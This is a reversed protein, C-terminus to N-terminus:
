PISELHAENGLEDVYPTVSHAILESGDELIARGTSLNWEVIKLLKIPAGPTQCRAQGLSDLNLEIDYYALWLDRTQFKAGM